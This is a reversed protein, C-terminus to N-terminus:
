VHRYFGFLEYVTCLNEVSVEMFINEVSIDKLFAEPIKM